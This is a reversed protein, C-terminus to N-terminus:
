PVRRGTSLKASRYSTDANPRGINLVRGLRLCSNGQWGAGSLRESM